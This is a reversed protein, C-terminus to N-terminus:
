GLLSNIQPAGIFNWGSVNAENLGNIANFTAGGQAHVNNLIVNNINVTGLPISLLGTGNSILKSYADCSDYNAKLYNMNWEDYFKGTYGPNELLITNKATVNSNLNFDHYFHM